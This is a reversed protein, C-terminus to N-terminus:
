VLRPPLSHRGRSSSFLRGDTVAQRSSTSRSREILPIFSGYSAFVRAGRVGRADIKKLDCVIFLDPQMVTDVQDDDEVAKPLRIDL